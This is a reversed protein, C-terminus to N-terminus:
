RYYISGGHGVREEVLKGSNQGVAAIHCGSAQGDKYYISGGHGIREEVFQGKSQDSVAVHCGSVQGDKYYISGGHGVREEILDSRNADSAVSDSAHAMGIVAMASFFGIAVKNRVRM